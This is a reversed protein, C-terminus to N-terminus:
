LDSAVKEALLKARKALAKPDREFQGPSYTLAVVTSLQTSSLATLDASYMGQSARQLGYGHRGVYALSAFLRLQEDESCHLSVLVTSLAGYRNWQGQTLEARGPGPQLSVIRAVHYSLGPPEAVKVLRFLLSDTAFAGLGASGIKSRASQLRPYFWTLDFAALALAPAICLVSM